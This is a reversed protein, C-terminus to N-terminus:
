VSSIASGLAMITSTANAIGDAWDQTKSSGKKLGEEFEKESGDADAAANESKVETIKKKKSAQYYEEGRSEPGRVALIIPHLKEVWNELAKM